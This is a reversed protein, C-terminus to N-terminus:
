QQAAIAAVYGSAPSFSVLSWGCDAGPTNEVRLLKAPEGPTLSVEFRDLGYSLGDGLAKVFAEKRTWCNFFGLPRECPDLAQYADHEGRAFWRAAITDADRIMRVAEIDIGVERGSSLVYVAIDDRRSLNFRLDGNRRPNALAPKGRAGATLEVSEPRMRLRAALLQRLRARCVIFRRADRPFAFRSAREREADSLLSAFARVAAPELALGTVVLEVADNRM